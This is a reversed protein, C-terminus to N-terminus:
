IRSFTLTLASSNKSVANKTLVVDSAGQWEAPYDMAGVGIIAAQGQMLRPVSHVTGITGPNTLTLTTDKFDEVSLKGTRAKRIMDEYTSWFAAFDM